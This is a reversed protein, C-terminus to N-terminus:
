QYLESFRKDTIAQFVPWDKSTYKIVFNFKFAKKLHIIVNDIDDLLAYIAAKTQDSDTYKLLNGLREKHVKRGCKKNCFEYNVIEVESELSYNNDSLYEKLVGMADKYRDLKMLIYVRKSLYINPWTSLEELERVVNLAKDFDLNAQYIDQLNVLYEERNFLIENDLLLKEASEIEGNYTFYNVLTEVSSKTHKIEVANKLLDIASELDDLKKLKVIAVRILIRYNTLSSPYSLLKSTKAKLEDIRNFKSLADLELLNYIWIQKKNAKGKAIKITNIYEDVVEKKASSDILDLKMNLVKPSFKDQIELAEIIQMLSNKADKVKRKVEVLFDFKTDWCENRICPYRQIGIDIIENIEDYTKEKDDLSDSLYGEIMLRAKHYYSKYYYPDLEIALNLVDCKENFGTLLKFKKLYIRPNRDDIDLVEDCIKLAEKLRNQMEYSDILLNLIRIKLDDKKCLGIYKRVLKETGDYDKRSVSDELSLLMIIESDTYDDDNLSSERDSNLQKLFDYINNQKNQKNLKEIDNKIFESKSNQLCKNTVFNSILDTSKSSIVTTDIPLSDGYVSHNIEALLEDFGDCLVYYVKDKWLLKRLEESIESENRICWYIGNKYYDEHKLLYSLTDMISRDGGGYGIVILGFDKSFEIFKNRMNDELSETERLTSKIDDFLYDGHLKIIKPRRSTVTISTISSDHACVIPRKNSYQYFAENVLDDFNTTFITNFYNSGVLKTLYAYGLSPTKDRVEQEVFIRRQRPLDYKKEFLSSYENLKNYWGGHHKTLYDKATEVSYEIDKNEEDDYFVEKRWTDILSRASEIGSTVSCGAGLLLSYNPNNDTRTEIHRVLDAVSRKKNKLEQQLDNTNM